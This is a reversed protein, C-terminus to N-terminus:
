KLIYVVVVARVTDVYKYEDMQERLTDIEDGNCDRLAKAEKGLLEARKTARDLEERNKEADRALREREDEAARLSQRLQLNEQQVPSEKVTILESRTNGLDQLLCLWFVIRM